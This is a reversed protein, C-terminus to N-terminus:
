VLVPRDPEIETLASDIGLDFLSMESYEEKYSDYVTVPYDLRDPDNEELQLLEDLLERYTIQM